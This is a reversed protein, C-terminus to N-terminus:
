IRPRHTPAPATEPVFAEIERRDWKAQAAGPNLCLTQTKKGRGAGMAFYGQGWETADDHDINFYAQQIAERLPNESNSDDFYRAAFALFRRDNAAIASGKSAEREVGDLISRKFDPQSDIALSLLNEVYGALAAPCHQIHCDGNAFGHRDLIEPPLPDALHRARLEDIRTKLPTHM